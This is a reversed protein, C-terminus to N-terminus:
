FPTKGKQKASKMSDAMERAVDTLDAVKSAEGLLDELFALATELREKRDKADIKSMKGDSVWRDYCRNRVQLEREVESHAEELSRTKESM